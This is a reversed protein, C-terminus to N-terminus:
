WDYFHKVVLAYKNTNPDDKLYMIIKHQLEVPFIPLALCMTVVPADIMVVGHIKDNPKAASVAADYM